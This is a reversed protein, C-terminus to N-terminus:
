LHDMMQVFRPLFQTLQQYGYYNAWLVTNGRRLVLQGGPLFVRVEGTLESTHTREERAAYFVQDAGAVPELSQWDGSGNWSGQSWEAARQEALLALPYRVARIELRPVETWDLGGDHHSFSAYQQFYWSEPDLLTGGHSIHDMNYMPDGSLPLDGGEIETLTVFGSGELDYPRYDLGAFCQLTNFVVPLLFLTGAMILWGTGRQGKLYGGSRVARRYRFLHVLGLLYSLDLLVFGVLSLLFPLTTGNSLTEMPYYRLMTTGIKWIAGNQYLGLLLINLFALLLGGVLKQRFFRGLAYDLVARDTHARAQPDHTAFLFFENRFMGWYHWGAEEYLANLEPDEEVKGQIPELHVQVEEPEVREFLTLPGLDLSYRLGRAAMAALWSELGPIDFSGFPTVRIAIKSM